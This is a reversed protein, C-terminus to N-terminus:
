FKLGMLAPATTQKLVLEWYRGGHRGESVFGYRTLKIFSHTLTRHPGDNFLMSRMEAQWPARVGKPM